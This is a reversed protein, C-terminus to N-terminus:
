ASVRALPEPASWPFHRVTPNALFQQCGMLMVEGGNLDALSAIVPMLSKEALEAQMGRAEDDEFHDDIHKMATEVLLAIADEHVTVTQRDVERLVAYRLREKRMMAAVANM